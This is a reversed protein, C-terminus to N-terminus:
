KLMSTNIKYRTALQALENAEFNEERPVHWIIVDDFQDLLRLALSLYKILNENVWKYEKSM